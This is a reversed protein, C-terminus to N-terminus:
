TLGVPMTEEREGGRHWREEPQRRWTTDRKRGMLEFRARQRRKMKRCCKMGDGGRELRFQLISDVGCGDVVRGSCGSESGGSSYFIIKINIV